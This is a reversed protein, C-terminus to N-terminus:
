LSGASLKAGDRVRRRWDRQWGRQQERRARAQRARSPRVLM